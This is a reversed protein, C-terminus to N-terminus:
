NGMPVGKFGVFAHCGTEFVFCVDLGGFVFVIGCSGVWFVVWVRWLMHKAGAERTALFVAVLDNGDVRVSPIGM